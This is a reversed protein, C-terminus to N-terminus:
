AQGWNIADPIVYTFNSAYLVVRTFAPADIVLPGSTPPPSSGLAPFQFAQLGFFQTDDPFVFWDLGLFYPNVSM